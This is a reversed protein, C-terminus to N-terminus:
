GFTEITQDVVTRLLADDTVDGRIALVDVGTGSIEDATAELEDRVDILVLSHGARGFVRALGRGFGVAAGTILAVPM